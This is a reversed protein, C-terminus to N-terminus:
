SDIEPSGYTTQLESYRVYPHREGIRQSFLGFSNKM